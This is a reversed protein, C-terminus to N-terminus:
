AYLVNNFGYLSLVVLLFLLAICLSVAESRLKDDMGATSPAVSLDQPALGYAPPPSAPAPMPRTAGPGFRQARRMLMVEFLVWLVVVTPGCVYLFTVSDTMMGGWSVFNILLAFAGTAAAMGHTMGLYRLCVFM